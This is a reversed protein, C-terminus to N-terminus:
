NVNVSGGKTVTIVSKRTGDLLELEIVFSTGSNGPDPAFSVKPTPPTFLIDVAVTSQCSGPPIGACTIVLSKDVDFVQFAEDSGVTYDKSAGACNAGPGAPDLDRFLIYQGGIPDVHVGWACVRETVSLAPYNPNGPSPQLTPQFADLAFSRAQLLVGVLTSEEKFFAIQAQGGHSSFILSGFLITTVAIVVLSEILTFGEAVSPVLGEAVSPIPDNKKTM